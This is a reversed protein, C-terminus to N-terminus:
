GWLSLCLDRDDVVDNNILLRFLLRGTCSEIVDRQGPEVVKLELDFGDAIMTESGILRGEEGVASLAESSVEKTSSVEVDAVDWLGM